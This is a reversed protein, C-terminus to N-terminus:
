YKLLFYRFIWSNIRKKNRATRDRPWGDSGASIDEAGVICFIKAIPTLFARRLGDYSIDAINGMSAVM